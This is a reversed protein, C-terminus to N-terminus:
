NKLAFGDIEVRKHGSVGLNLFKVTYAKTGTPRSLIRISQRYKTTSSHLNVTGVKKGAFYVALKGMKPGTTTVLYLTGKTFSLTAYANKKTSYRATGLFYNANKTKAWGGSFKAKTEDFPVITDAIASWAGVNGAVDYARV